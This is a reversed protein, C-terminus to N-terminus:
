AIPPMCPSPRTVLYTVLQPIRSTYSCRLSTSPYISSSTDPTRDPQAPPDTGIRDVIPRMSAPHSLHSQLSKQHNKDNDHDHDQNQPVHLHGKEAIPPEHIKRAGSIEVRALLVNLGM